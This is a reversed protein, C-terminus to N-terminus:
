VRSPARKGLRQLGSRVRLCHHKCCRPVRRPPRPPRSAGGCLSASRRKWLPAGGRATEFPRGDCPLFVAARAPMLFTIITTPLPRWVGLGEWGPARKVCVCDPGDSSPARLGSPISRANLPLVALAASKRCSVRKQFFHLATQAYAPTSLSSSMTSLLPISNRHPRSNVSTVESGVSNLPQRLTPPTGVKSSFSASNSWSSPPSSHAFRTDAPWDRPPPM